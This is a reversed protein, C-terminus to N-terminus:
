SIAACDLDPPVCRSRILSIVFGVQAPHQLRDQMGQNVGLRGVVDAGVGSPVSLVWRAPVRSLVM